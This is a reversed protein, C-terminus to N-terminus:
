KGVSSNKSQKKLWSAVRAPNGLAVTNEPIDKIVVSNAGIISGDGINVGPAIIAREGIWVNNGITVPRIEKDPIRMRKIRMDPDLPHANTDTIIVYPAILCDEGITISKGARIAVNFGISTNKGIKIKVEPFNLTNTVMEIPTNIRVNDGLVVEGGKPIFLICERAGIKVNEGAKVNHSLLVQKNRWAKIVGYSLSAEECVFRLIFRFRSTMSRKRWEQSLDFPTRLASMVNKSLIKERHQKLRSLM